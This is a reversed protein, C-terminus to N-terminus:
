RYRWRKRDKRLCLNRLTVSVLEKPYALSPPARGGRAESSGGIWFCFSYLLSSESRGERPYSLLLDERLYRLCCVVSVCVTLVVNLKGNVVRGSFSSFCWFEGLCVRGECFVTCSELLVCFVFSFCLV